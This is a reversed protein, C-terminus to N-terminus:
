FATAGSGVFTRWQGCGDDVIIPVMVPQNPQLRHVVFSQQTTGPSPTLFGTGHIISGPGIPEIEANRMPEAASGFTIRNLSGQGTKVTVVLRDAGTRASTLVVNPRPLCASTPVDDDVITGTAAATGITANAAHQLRVTFIETQEVAYDGLIRIELPKTSEGARFTLRGARDAVNIDSGVQATGDEVVWEVTVDQTASPTLHVTFTMPVDVGAGETAQAPDISLSPVENDVITVAVGPIALGQYVPDASSATMAVAGTHSGEAVADDVAEVTILRPSSWNAPTFVADAIPQLQSGTNFSVTVNAIPAASLALTFVDTGAGEGVVTTGGTQTVTAGATQVTVCASFESTDNSSDTATATLARGATVVPLGSLSFAGGPISVSTSGLYTEGEGSGSADCSPSSFLEVTYTGSASDLAGAVSTVIGNTTASALVPFNQLNNSGSDADGPDNPTIGFTGILDIGVDAAGSGNRVISNRSVLNGTSGNQISVGQNGNDSITNGQIRAGTGGLIRVGIGASYAVVNGDGAALGGIQANTGANVSIGLGNQEPTVGDARVGLYNCTISTSSAGNPAIGVSFGTIALGRISSGDAGADLVLGLNFSPADVGPGRLEVTLAGSPSPCSINGQSLGDIAVPKTLPPLSTGDFVSIVHPAAGAIDFHIADHDGYTGTRNATVDANVDAGNNISVIADLLSVGDGTDFAHDTKTVTVTAAAAPTATGLAALVVAVLAAALTLDVRRRARVLVAISRGAAVPDPLVCWGIMVKV